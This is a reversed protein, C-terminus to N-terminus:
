GTSAAHYAALAVKAWEIRREPALVGPREFEQLFVTTCKEIGQVKRLAAISAKEDHQLEFKLYGYNAEDSQWDLNSNAKCWKFFSERRPGTWQAWGYGGKGEPQGIEHLITFGACEHGLNGLIAATQEDTLGFDGMLDRMVVPALKKFKTQEAM